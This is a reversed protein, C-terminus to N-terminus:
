LAAILSLVESRRVQRKLSRTVSLFFTPLRGATTSTVTSGHRSSFAVDLQTTLRTGEECVRVAYAGTTGSGAAKGPVLRTKARCPQRTLFRGKQAAEFSAEKRQLSLLRQFEDFHSIHSQLIRSVWTARPARLDKRPIKHPRVNSVLLM